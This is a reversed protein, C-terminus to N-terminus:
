DLRSLIQYCLHVFYPPVKRLFQILDRINEGPLSDHGVAPPGPDEPASHSSNLTQHVRAPQVQFENSIL